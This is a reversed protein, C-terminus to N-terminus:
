NSHVLLLLQKLLLLSLLSHFISESLVQLRLLECLLFRRDEVFRDFNDTLIGVRM